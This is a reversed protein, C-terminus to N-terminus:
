GGESFRLALRPRQFRPPAASKRHSPCQLLGTFKLALFTPAACHKIGAAPLVPVRNARHRLPRGDVEADRQGPLEGARRGMEDDLPLARVGLHQVQEPAAHVAVVLLPPFAVEGGAGGPQVEVVKLHAGVPAALPEGLAKGPVADEAAVVLPLQRHVVFGELGRVPQFAANHILNERVAKVFGAGGLPFDGCPAGEVLVPLVLRVPGGVGLPFDGVRVKKAAVQLADPLLQGIELLQADGAQIHVGNELGVGVVPVVRRVVGFDVGQQPVLLVEAGQALRRLLQADPHHNVPHEAVCAAVADVEVPLPAVGGGPGVVGLLGGIVGPVGEPLPGIGVVAPPVEVGQGVDLLGVGAVVGVDIPFLADDALPQRRPGGAPPQVHGVLQGVGEQVVEGRRGLGLAGVGQHQPLHPLVGGVLRGVAHAPPVQQALLQVGHHVVGEPVGNQAEQQPAVRPIEGLRHLADALVVRGLAQPQQHVVDAGM